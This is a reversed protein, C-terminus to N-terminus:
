VTANSANEIGIRQLSYYLQLVATILLGDRDTNRSRLFHAPIPRSSSLLKSPSDDRRTAMRRVITVTIPCPQTDAQSQEHARHAPTPASVPGHELSETAWRRTEFFAVGRM